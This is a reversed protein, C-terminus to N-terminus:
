QEIFFFCSHLMGDVPKQRLSDVFNSANELTYQMNRVHNAEADKSWIGLAQSKAQDELAVLRNEEESPKNLRRVEVLGASVLSDIVNEGTTPEKGLYLTGRDNAANADKM